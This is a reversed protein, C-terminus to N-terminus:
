LAKEKLRSSAGLYSWIYLCLGLSALGGVTLRLVGMELQRFLLTILGMLIVSGVLVSDQLGPFPLDRTLLWGLVLFILRYIIMGWCAGLLGYHRILYYGVLGGALTALSSILPLKGTQELYVMKRSYFTWVFKIFMVLVLLPLINGAEHYSPPTMAGVILDSFCILFLALLCAMFVVMTVARRLQVARGEAEKFFYPLIGYSLANAPLQFALTLKEAVTYIGLSAMPAYRALFIRDFSQGTTSILNHIFVRWSLHYVKLAKDLSVNYSVYGKLLFLAVGGMLAAAACQGYVYGALGLRYVALLVVIAGNTLVFSLFNIAVLLRPCNELRLIIELFIAPVGACSALVVYKLLHAAHAYSAPNIVLDLLGRGQWVLLGGVAGAAALSYVVVAGLILRREPTYDPKYFTPICTEAAGTMLLSLYATVLNFISILGFDSLPILATYLPLLLFLGIRPLILGLGYIGSDQFIARIM